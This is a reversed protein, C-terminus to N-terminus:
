SKAGVSSWGSHLLTSGLYYPFHGVRKWATGSLVKDSSVLLIYLLECGNTLLINM